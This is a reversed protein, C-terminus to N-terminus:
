VLEMEGALDFFTDVTVVLPTDLKVRSWQHSTDALRLFQRLKALSPNRRECGDGGEVTVHM